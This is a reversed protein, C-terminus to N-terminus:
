FSKPSKKARHQYSTHPKHARCGPPIAIALRLFFNPTDNEQFRALPSEAALPRADLASPM